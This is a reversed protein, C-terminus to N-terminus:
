LAAEMAALEEDSMNKLAEDQKDARIGAIKQKMAKKAEANKATEVEALRTVIVHKVLELKQALERSGPRPKTVFSETQSSKVDRSLNIAVADLSFAGKSLPIDWLDEVCLQGKTSDFRWQKRAAVEFLNVDTM